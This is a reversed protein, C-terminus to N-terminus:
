LDLENGIGSRVAIEYYAAHIALDSIGQGANNHFLTIDKRDERGKAKGAVIEGVERVKDWSIIGRQVAEWTLAQRDQRSQEVSCVVVERCRRLVTDDVERRGFWQAQGLEKNEGVITTVHSGEQLWHGDFVPSNSNTACVIIDMGEVAKKPEDVPIVAREVLAAMERCFSERREVTRSYVFIKELDPLVTALTTLHSPAFFGTGFLGVKRSDPRALYLTGVASTAATRIGVAHPHLARKTIPADRGSGGYFIALPSADRSSYLVYFSRDKSWTPGRYHDVRDELVRFCDSRTMIGMYGRAPLGGVFSNIRVQEGGGLHVHLRRRPHNITSDLGYERFANEVARIAEKLSLLEEVEKRNILRV